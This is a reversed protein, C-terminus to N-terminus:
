ALGMRWLVFAILPVVIGATVLWKGRGALGKRGRLVLIGTSALVLLVVAYADAIVTWLGQPENLHLQNLERLLWRPRKTEILASGTDVEALITQPRDKFGVYLTKGADQSFALWDGELGLEDLLRTAAERPPGTLAAEVEVTEYHTSYSANWQYAHNVAFGSIAYVITLGVAIYGLDRHLSSNLRRWSFPRRSKKTKSSTM